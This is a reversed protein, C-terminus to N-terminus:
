QKGVLLRELPANSITATTKKMARVRKFEEM